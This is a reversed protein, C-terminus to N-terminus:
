RTVRAKIDGLKKCIAERLRHWEPDKELAALPGDILLPGMGTLRELELQIAGYESMARAASADDDETFGDGTINSLDSLNRAKALREPDFKRLYTLRLVLRQAYLRQLEFARHLDTRFDPWGKLAAREVDDHWQLLASLQELYAEQLEAGSHPTASTDVGLATRLFRSLPDIFSV